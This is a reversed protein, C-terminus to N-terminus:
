NSNLDKMIQYTVKKKNISGPYVYSAYYMNLITKCLKRDQYRPLYSIDIHNQSKENIEERNGFFCTGILQKALGSGKYSFTANLYILTLTKPEIISRILGYYNYKEDVNIHMHNVTKVLRHVYRCIKDIENNDPKDIISNILYFKAIYYNKEQYVEQPKNPDPFYKYIYKIFGISDLIKYIDDEMSKNRSNSFFKECYSYQNNKKVLQYCIKEINNYQTKNPINVLSSVQTNKRSYITDIFRKTKKKLDSNSKAKNRFLLALRLNYYKYYLYQTLRRKRTRSNLIVYGVLNNNKNNELPKLYRLLQKELFKNTVISDLDNKLIDLLKYFYTIEDHLETSNTVRIFQVIGLISGIIAISITLYTNIQANKASHPLVVLNLLKNDNFYKFIILVSTIIIISKVLIIFHSSKKRMFLKTNKKIFFILKGTLPFNIVVLCIITIILVSQFSL